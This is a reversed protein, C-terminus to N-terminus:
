LLPWLFALGLGAAFVAGVLGTTMFHRLLWDREEAPYKDPPIERGAYTPRGAAAMAFKYLGGAVLLLCLPQVLANILVQGWRAWPEDVDGLSYVLALLLLLTQFIALGGLLRIVGSPVRGPREGSRRWRLKNALGWAFLGWLLGAPLGFLLLPPLLSSYMMVQRRGGNRDGPVEITRAVLIESLM